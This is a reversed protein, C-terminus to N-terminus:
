LQFDVRLMENTLTIDRRHEDSLRVTAPGAPHDFFRYEGNRNTITNYEVDGIRLYVPLHAIPALERSLVRGHLVPAPTRIFEFLFTKYMTDYYVAVNTPGTYGFSPGKVTATATETAASTTTRTTTSTWTWQGSAEFRLGFAPPVSVGISTGITTDRTKSTSYMDTHANTLTLQFSDPTGNPSTPPEYPFTTGTRVFQDPDVATNGNAFEDHALIDSYHAPTIGHHALENAVGPPMPLTGRLWGVKVYQIDMDTSTHNTPNIDLTWLTTGAHDGLHVRPNLWLYIEDEDHDIGDLPPGVHTITTTSSRSMALSNRDTTTITYGANGGPNLDFVKDILPISLTAKVSYSQKFSRTSETFTSFTSGQGYSVSSTGGGGGTRGPPSYIVALVYYLPDIAGAPVTCEGLAAPENAWPPGPDGGDCSGTGLDNQCATGAPRPWLIWGVDVPDCRWENCAPALPMPGCDDSSVAAAATGTAETGPEGTCGWSAAVVGISAVRLLWHRIGAGASTLENKM